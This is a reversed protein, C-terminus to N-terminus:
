IFLPSVQVHNYIYLFSEYRHSHFLNVLAVQPSLKLEVDLKM